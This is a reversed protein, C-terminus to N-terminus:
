SLVVKKLKSVIRAPWPDLFSAPGDPERIAAIRSISVM